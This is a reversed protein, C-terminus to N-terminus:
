RCVTYSTGYVTRYAVVHIVYGRPMARTQNPAQYVCDHRIEPFQHPASSGSLPPPQRSIRPPPPPPDPQSLQGYIPAPRRSRDTRRDDHDRCRDRPDPPATATGVGILRRGTRGDTRGDTRGGAVVAQHIACPYRHTSPLFRCPSFNCSHIIVSYYKSFM